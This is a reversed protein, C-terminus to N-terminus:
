QKNEGVTVTIKLNEGTGSYNGQRYIEFVVKDGIKKGQIISTVQSAETIKVGDIKQILDIARLGASEAPSGSDVSQVYVGMYEVNNMRASLYSNIDVSTLGIYPRGTVYGNEKLEKIVPAVANIPLVFGLGEVGTESTKAIVIGILEGNSDFMGGGSNGPNVAADTQLVTFTTGDLDIERELASIIGTTVTGQLEGLPNGIVITYDGVRLTSSDGIRAATLGTADIKLLAVDDSTSKGVLSATFSRGDKLFVTIKNGGSVVHNNTVIYGDSTLIVGSGSGETPYSRNFYDYAVGTVNIAVVSGAIKDVTDAIGARSATNTVAAASAKVPTDTSEESVASPLSFIDSSIVSSTQSSIPLLRGSLSCGTVAFLLALLLAAASVVKKLNKSM